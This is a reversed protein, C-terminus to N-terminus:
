DNENGLGKLRDERERDQRDLKQEIRRFVEDGPITKVKGEVIENWRREVVDALAEESEWDFTGRAVSTHM